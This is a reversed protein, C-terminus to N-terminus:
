SRLEAPLRPALVILLIFCTIGLLWVPYRIASRKHAQAYQLYYRSIEPPGHLLHATALSRLAKEMYAHISKNFSDMGISKRINKLIMHKDSDVSATACEADINGLLDNLDFSRQGSLRRGYLEDYFAAEDDPSFVMTVDCELTLAQYIELLCWCRQLPIPNEYPYLCIVVRGPASINSRLTAVLKEQMDEDGATCDEVFAHQNLAFSDV